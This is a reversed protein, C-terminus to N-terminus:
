ADTMSPTASKAEDMTMARSAGRHDARPAAIMTMMTTGALVAGPPLRGPSAATKMVPSSTTMRGAARRAAQPAVTTMTTTMTTGALVAM